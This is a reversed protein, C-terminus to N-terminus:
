KNGLVWAAMALFNGKRYKDDIVDINDESDDPLNYKRIFKRIFKITAERQAPEVENKIWVKELTILDTKFGLIPFVIPPIKLKQFTCLRIFDSGNIGTGELIDWLLTDMEETLKQFHEERKHELSQYDWGLEKYVRIALLSPNTENPINNIWMEVLEMYRLISPNVLDEVGCTERQIYVGQYKYVLSVPYTGKPELFYFLRDSDQVPRLEIRKQIVRHKHFVSWLIVNSKM